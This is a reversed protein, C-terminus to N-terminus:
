CGSLQYVSSVSSSRDAAASLSRRGAVAAQVGAETIYGAAGPKPERVVTVFELLSGALSALLPLVEDRAGTADLYRM